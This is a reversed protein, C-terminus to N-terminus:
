AISLLLLLILHCYFRTECDEYCFRVRYDEDYYKYCYGTSITVITIIPLVVTVVVLVIISHNTNYDDNSNSAISLTYTCWSRSRCNMLQDRLLLPSQFHCPLLQPRFGPM